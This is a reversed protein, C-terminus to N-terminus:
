STTEDVIEKVLNFLNNEKQLRFFRRCFGERNCENLMATAISSGIKELVAPNIFAYSLTERVIWGKGPVPADTISLVKVKPRM